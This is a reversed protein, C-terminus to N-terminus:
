RTLLSIGTAVPIERDLPLRDSPPLAGLHLDRQLMLLNSHPERPVEIERQDVLPPDPCHDQLFPLSPVLAIKADPLAVM